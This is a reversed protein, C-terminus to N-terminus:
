LQIRIGGSVSAPAPYSNTDPDISERSKKWLIGLNSANFYVQCKGVNYAVYVNQLRINDAPEVTASSNTYYSDRRGDAPYIMSPVNTRLEDGPQQWRKAYDSYGELGGSFLQEYHLANAKRFYHGGAYTINVALNLKGFTLTNRVAGYLVPRSPGSYILDNATLSDTISQYQTSPVGNLIGLPYGTEHDLGMFPYSVLLFSGKGESIAIKNGDSIYSSISPREFYYKRVKDKNYSVILGTQFKFKMQDVWKLHLTLDVGKTRLNASNMKLSKGYGLTIDIPVLSILDRCDKVFFEAIGSIRSHKSAFEISTNFQAVEEWRLNPNPINDISSFKLNTNLSPTQIYRLTLVAAVSNDINGQKGYTFRWNLTPLFDLHYFSEKSLNWLLGSSWLPKWKANTEVGFLNSADRRGSATIHYRGLFTYSANGYFSIFRDTTYSLSAANPIRASGGTYQPKTAVFDVNNYLKLDDDYGYLTSRANNSGLIERFEAGGLAAIRHDSWQQNFTFQNRIQNSQVINSSGNLIGGYPVASNTYPRGLPTFQNIMNRAYYSEPSYYVTAESIQRQYQYIFENNLVSLIKQKYSVSSTLDTVKTTRSTRGKEELPIYNWDLLAGKGVTDTFNTNYYVPLRLARGMEDALRTYPWILTSGALTRHIQMANSKYEDLTITNSVNLESGKWPNIAVAQRLTIRRRNSGDRNGIAENNDFGGSLIYSANKSGGNVSFAAQVNESPKYYYKKVEDRYSFKALSDLSRTAAEPTIHNQKQNHFIAVAPPVVNNNASSSLVNSYYGHEYLYKQLQIFEMSSMQPTYNFDPIFGSTINANLSVATKRDYKGQKLKIVIVGNGAQAGWISAAAADKLITIDEVDNPNINSLDGYYPFNDVVVLPDQAGFNDRLTSIGRITLGTNGAPTSRGKVATMGSAVGDLRDLINTTARENLRESSILVFSGTVRDSPLRQYGTSITVAELAIALPELFVYNTLSFASITMQMPTYGVLSIFVSDDGKLNGEIRFFGKSNTKASLKAEKVQILVNELPQNSRRDFIQCELKHTPQQAVAVLNFVTLVFIYFNRM